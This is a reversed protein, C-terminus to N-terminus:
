ALGRAEKWIDWLCEAQRVAKDPAEIDRCLRLIISVPEQWPSPANQRQAVAEGSSLTGAEPGLGTSFERLSYSLVGARVHAGVSSDGPLPRSPQTM